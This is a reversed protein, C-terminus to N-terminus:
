QETKILIDALSNKMVIAFIYKTAILGFYPEKRTTETEFGFFM